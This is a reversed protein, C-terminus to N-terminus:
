SHGSYIIGPVLDGQVCQSSLFIIAAHVDLCELQFSLHTSVTLYLTLIWLVKEVSKKKKVFIIDLYLGTIGVFILRKWM